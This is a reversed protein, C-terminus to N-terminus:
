HTHTQEHKVMKGCVGCSVYCQNGWEHNHEGHRLERGTEIIEALSNTQAVALIQEPQEDPMSIICQYLKTYPVTTNEPFQGKIMFHGVKLLKSIDGKSRGLEFRYYDEFTPFDPKYAEQEKIIALCMGLAVQSVESLKNLKSARELLDNTVYYEVGNSLGTPDVTEIEEGQTGAVQQM